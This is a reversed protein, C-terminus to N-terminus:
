VPQAASYITSVQRQAFANNLANDIATATIGLRAAAARDIVVNEQPGARDQDSTVDTIGPTAKLKDELALSWHRLEALDQCIVAFEYQAGGTRGGGRM